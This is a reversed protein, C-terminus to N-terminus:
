ISFSPTSCWSRLSISIWAWRCYSDGAESSSGRWERGSAGREVGGWGSEERYGQQARGVHGCGQIWLGAELDGKGCGPRARDTGLKGWIPGTM